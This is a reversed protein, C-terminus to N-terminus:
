FDVRYGASFYYSKRDESDRDPQNSWEFGGELEVNLQKMVRYNFRMAPRIRVLDASTGGKGGDYYDVRLRPAVRIDQTIPYHSDLYVSLIDQMRENDTYRFGLTWVDTDAILGHGILQTTYSMQLGSSQIGSFYGAYFPGLLNEILRALDGSGSFDSVMIDGNFQFRKSIPIIGGLTFTKMVSANLKAIQELNDSLLQQFLAENVSGITTFRVFDWANGTSSIPVRRYDFNGQLIAGSEFNWSGQLQAINLEDLFIDYDIQSFVPHVSDQYRLEGGIARRDPISLGNVDQNIFYINGAWADYFPGAELSFGYFSKNFRPDTSRFPQVPFGGVAVAQLKPLIRYGVVGGDFRGLVGGTSRIQRGLRTMLGTQRDNADLYLNSIRFQRYDERLFDERYRADFRARFDYRETRLRGNAYVNNLLLSSDRTVGKADSFRGGQYYYQSFGGRLESLPKMQSKESGLKGSGLKEKAKASVSELGILRQKVRMAGEGKPYLKLYNEYEQKARWTQGLRDRALGLMEHAEPHNASLESQGLVKSYLGIVSAWDEQIVAKRARELSTDAVSNNDKSKSNKGGSDLANATERGNDALVTASDPNVLEIFFGRGDESPSVIYRYDKRFRLILRASTGGAPEFIIETLAVEDTPKWAMSERQLAGASIGSGGLGALYIQLTDGVSSPTHRLYQVPTAFRFSLESSGKEEGISVDEILQINTPAALCIM